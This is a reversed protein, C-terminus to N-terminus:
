RTATANKERYVVLLKNYLLHFIEQLSQRTLDVIDHHYNSANALSTEAKAALVLSDWALIVDHPNYWVQIELM